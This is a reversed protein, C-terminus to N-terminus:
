NACNAVSKMHSQMAHHIETPHTYTYLLTM